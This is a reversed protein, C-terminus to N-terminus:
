QCGVEYIARGVRMTKIDAVAAIASQAKDFLKIVDSKNFQNHHLDVSSFFEDYYMACQKTKDLAGISVLERFRGEESEYLAKAVREVLENPIQCDINSDGVEDIAIKALLLSAVAAQKQIHFSQWKKNKKLPTSVSWIDLIVKGIEELGLVALAFASAFRLNDSLFKADGILRAANAVIETRQHEQNAHNM